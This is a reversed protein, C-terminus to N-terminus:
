KIKINNALETTCYMPVVGDEYSWDAMSDYVLGKKILSSLTGKEKNSIGLGDYESYGTNQGDAESDIIEQLLIKEIKTIEITM